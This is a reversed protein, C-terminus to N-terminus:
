LLEWCTAAGGKHAGSRHRTYILINNLDLLLVLHLAIGTGINRDYDKIEGRLGQLYFVSLWPDPGEDCSM